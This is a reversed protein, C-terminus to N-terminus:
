QNSVPFVKGGRQTPVRALTQNARLGRELGVTIFFPELLTDNAILFVVATVTVGYDPKTSSSVM